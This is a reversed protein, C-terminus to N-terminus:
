FKDPFQKALAETLADAVVYVVYIHQKMEKWAEAEEAYEGAKLQLSPRRANSHAVSHGARSFAKDSAANRANETAHFRHLNQRLTM